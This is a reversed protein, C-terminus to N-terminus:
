TSAVRYCFKKPIFFGSKKCRAKKKWINTGIPNYLGLWSADNPADILAPFHRKLGVKASKQVKGMRALRDDKTPADPPM